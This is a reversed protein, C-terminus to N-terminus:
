GRSPTFPPETFFCRAYTEPGHIAGATPVLLQVENLGSSPGCSLKLILKPNLTLNLINHQQELSNFGESSSSCYYNASKVSQLLTPCHLNAM